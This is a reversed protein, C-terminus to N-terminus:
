EAATLRPVSLEVGRAERSVVWEGVFCILKMTLGEFERRRPVLGLRFCLFALVSLVALMCARRATGTGPKSLFPLLIVIWLGPLLFVAHVKVMTLAALTFSAFIVARVPRRDMGKLTIWAFLFFGFYYMSEPMFYASYANVPSFVSLATIWLALTRPLHYRALSYILPISGVFFVTNFLRACELFRDGCRDTLGFAGFYLYSPRQSFKIDSLRSFM